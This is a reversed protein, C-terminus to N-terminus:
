SCFARSSKALRSNDRTVSNIARPEDVLKRAFFPHITTYGVDGGLHMKIAVRKGAVTASLNLADLLRLWKAGISNRPELNSPSYDAFLLESPM